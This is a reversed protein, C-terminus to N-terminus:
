THSTMKEDYNTSGLQLMMKAIERQGGKTAMVSSQNYDVAGKELAWNIIKKNVGKAATAM